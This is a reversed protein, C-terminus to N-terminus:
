RREESRFAAASSLRAKRVLSLSEHAAASAPIRTLFRLQYLGLRLAIRVGRDLSEIRKKSFQEVIRDLLLQWRLVGLVLEHCLARDVAKLRPEEAALLVSSFAGSEVQELIRFAALRAPSIEKALATALKWPCAM